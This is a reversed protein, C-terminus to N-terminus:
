FDRCSSCNKSKEGKPRASFSENASLSSNSGGTGIRSCNVLGGTLSQTAVVCSTSYRALVSMFFGSPPLSGESGKACRGCRKCRWKRAWELTVYPYDTTAGLLPRVEILNEIEFESTRFLRIWDGHSLHFEVGSDTPWEIRYM